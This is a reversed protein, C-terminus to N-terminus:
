AFTLELGRFTPRHRLSRALLPAWGTGALRADIRGRTADDFSGYLELVRDIMWLTYPMAVRKIAVGDCDASVEGVVRPPTAAEEPHADVWAEVADITATFLPVATRGMVSLVDMLAEPIEDDEFWSGPAGPSPFNSREIWGVVPAATELLLRRPVLDNFFHGYFTGMLACDAVSMRSGLLYDHQEFHSSLRALLEHTQVEIAPGTEDNAGLFLRATVMRDAARDALERDGIMAAFRARATAEGLESGWRFHMAAALSYEDHYLEILRAALALLPSRPLLPPDPHREELAEYIRTSDQFVQGDPAVLVPVFGLGTLAQVEEINAREERYWVDKYRLAPRVKASFLSIEFALFRYPSSPM